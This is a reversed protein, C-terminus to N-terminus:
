GDVTSGRWSGSLQRRLGAMAQPELASLDAADLTNKLLLGLETDGEIVLRRNFFLADPDEQRLMLALFDRSSASITFDATNSTSGACFGGKGYGLNLRLGADLVCLAFHHGKLPELPERAVIRDLALNLIQALVLSPPWQPLRKGVRMFLNPLRFEPLDM